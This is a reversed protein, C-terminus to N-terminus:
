KYNTGLWKNVVTLSLILDIGTIFYEHDHMQKYNIGFWKNVVTLSLM